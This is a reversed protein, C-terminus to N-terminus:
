KPIPNRPKLSGHRGGHPEQVWERLSVVGSKRITRRRNVSKLLPATVGAPDASAVARRQAVRNRRNAKAKNKPWNKRFAHRSENAAVRHDRDYEARKKSQPTKRSKM